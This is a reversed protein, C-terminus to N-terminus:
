NGPQSAPQRDGAILIGVYRAHGPPNGPIVIVQQGLRLDEFRANTSGISRVIGGGPKKHETVRSFGYQTKDDLLFKRAVDNNGPALIAIADKDLRTLEGHLVTM